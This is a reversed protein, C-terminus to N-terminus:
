YYDFNKIFFKYFLFIYFDSTSTKIVSFSSVEELCENKVNRDKPVYLINHVIGVAVILRKM